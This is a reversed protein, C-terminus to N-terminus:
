AHRGFQKNFPVVKNEDEVEPVNTDCELEYPDDKSIRAITGIYEIKTDPTDVDVFSTVCDDFSEQTIHRNIRDNIVGGNDLWVDFADDRNVAKVYQEVTLTYYQKVKFVKKGDDDSWLSLPMTEKNM